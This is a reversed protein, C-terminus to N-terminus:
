KKISQLILVFCILIVLVFAESHGALAKDMLMFASCEANQYVHSMLLCLHCFDYDFDRLPLLNQIENHHLLGEFTYEFHAIDEQFLDAIMKLTEPTYYETTNSKFSQNLVKVQPQVEYGLVDRIYAFTTSLNEYRGVFDVGVNGGKESHVIYSLQTQRVHPFHETTYVMKVFQTFTLRKEIQWNIFDSKKRLLKMTYRYFSIMRSWPNRVIAFKRYESLDTGVVGRMQDLTLHKSFLALSFVDDFKCLSTVTTGANKPIHVFIVKKIQDYPM